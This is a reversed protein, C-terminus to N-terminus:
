AVTDPKCLLGVLASFPRNVAQDAIARAAAKTVNAFDVLMEVLVDAAPPFIMPDSEVWEKTWRVLMEDSVNVVGTTPDVHPAIALLTSFNALVEGMKLQFNTQKGELRILSPFKKAFDDLASEPLPLPKPLPKDITPVEPYAEAEDLKRTLAFYEAANFKGESDITCTAAAARFTTAFATENDTLIMYDEALARKINERVLNRYAELRCLVASFVRACVDEDSYSHKCEGLVARAGRNFPHNPMITFFTRGEETPAVGAGHTEPKADSVQEGLARYFLDTLHLYEEYPVQDTAPLMASADEPRLTKLIEAITKSM